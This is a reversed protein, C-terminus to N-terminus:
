DTILDVANEIPNLNKRYQKRLRFMRYDTIISRFDISIGVSTYLGDLAFSKIQNFITKRYGFAAKLGIWRIPKFTGSLGFYAMATFSSKKDTPRYNIENQYRISNSGVGFELPMGLAFFRTNKYIFEFNFAAYNLKYFCLYNTDNVTKSLSNLQDSLFYYGMTARLKNKLLVGADFGTINLKQKKLFTLRNDFRFQPRILKPTIIRMSDANFRQKSIKTQAFVASSTLVFLLAISTKFVSM